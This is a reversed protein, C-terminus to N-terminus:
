DRAWPVLRLTLAAVASRLGISLAAVILLAAFVVDTQSRGNAQLMVYGLGSSAGVWEGVLAGIPAYVAALRVGTGWAPLGSPIRLLALEEAPSAGYLRGLDVLRPETARLGDLAAAAVPFFIAVSAMVIKSGFGFGLWLVLLPALAFVPFAQSAVLAPQLAREALTFRAMILAMLTGAITGAALGVLAELSTTLAQGIWFAPRGVLASAVAMPGPFIFPPVELVAVAAQWVAAIGSAVLLTQFAFRFARVAM